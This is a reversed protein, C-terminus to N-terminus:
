VTTVKLMPKIARVFSPIPKIKVEGQIWAEMQPLLPTRQFPRYPMDLLVNPQTICDRAGIGSFPALTIFGIPGARVQPDYTGM